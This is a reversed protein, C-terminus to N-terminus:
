FKFKNKRRAIYSIISLGTLMLAYTEPEPVPPATSFSVSDIGSVINYSGTLEGTEPDIFNFVPSVPTFIITNFGIGDDSSFTFSIDESNLEGNLFQSDAMGKFAIGNLNGPEQLGSSFTLDTIRATNITFSFVPVTFDIIFFGYNTFTLGSFVKEPLAESILPLDSTFDVVGPIDFDNIDKSGPSGFNGFLDVTITNAQAINVWSLFAITLIFSSKM